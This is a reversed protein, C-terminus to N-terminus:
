QTCQYYMDLYKKATNEASYKLKVHELAHCTIETNTHPHKLLRIIAEAYSKPTQEKVLIGCRGYDLLKPIGGVAHAIVPVNLSMAELLIMPLGEHDSTMLLADLTQLEKHMNECHGEFQLIDDTQLAKNLLTLEKRLPGDGYIHFSVNLNLQTQMLTQATKIFLDVRKVAVLRGAIGIKFPTTKGPPTNSTDAVRQASTDIGNNIVNIKDAPYDSQLLEALDESVAIIKKQLFRGCFWDLSFILRKPLSHWGPTYEAAGHVTRLCPIKGSLQAAISGLINEKMRHTHVIDPQIDRITNILQLLINFSNFKEEDLVIVHLGSDLLKQELTGHNLLIVEVITNTKKLSIALTFLLVEAGAWLDGSAIHLVKLPLTKNKIISKNNHM